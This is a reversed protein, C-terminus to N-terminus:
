GGASQLLQNKMERVGVIEKEIKVREKLLSVMEAKLKVLKEEIINLSAQLATEKAVLTWMHKLKADDDMCSFNPSSPHGISVDPTCISLQLQDQRNVKVTILFCIQNSVAESSCSARFAASAMAPMGPEDEIEIKVTTGCFPAGSPSNTNGVEINVSPSVNWVGHRSYLGFGKFVDNQAFGTSSDYANCPLGATLAHGPAHCNHATTPSSALTESAPAPMVPATPTSSTFCSSNPPTLSSNEYVEKVFKKWGDSQFFPTFSLDSANASARPTRLSIDNALEHTPQTEYANANRIVIKSTALEVTHAVASNGNIESSDPRAGIHRHPLDTLRQSSTRRSIALTTIADSSTPGNRPSVLRYKNLREKLMKQSRSKLFLARSKMAVKEWRKRVANTALNGTSLKKALSPGADSNTKVVASESSAPQKKKSQASNKKSMCKKKTQNSHALETTATKAHDATGNKKSRNRLSIRALFGKKVPVSTQQQSATVESNVSGTQQSTSPAVDDINGKNHRTCTGRIKYSVAQKICPSSSTQQLKPNAEDVDAEMLEDEADWREGYYDPNAPRPTNRRFVGNYYRSERCSDCQNLAATLPVPVSYEVSPPRYYPQGAPYWPNHSGDDQAAAYASSQARLSSRYPPKMGRTFAQRCDADADESRETPKRLLAARRTAGGMESRPKRGIKLM